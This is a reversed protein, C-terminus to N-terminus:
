EMVNPSIEHMKITKLLIRSQQHYLVYLIQFVDTNSKATESISYETVNRQNLKCVHLKYMRACNPINIAIDTNSKRRSINFVSEIYMVKKSSIGKKNWLMLSYKM